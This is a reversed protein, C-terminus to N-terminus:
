GRDSSNSPLPRRRALTTLLGGMGVAGGALLLGTLFNPAHAVLLSGGALVCVAAWIAGVLLAVMTRVGPSASAVLAVVTALLTAVLAAVVVTTAGVSGFLTRGAASPTHLFGILVIGLCFVAVFGWVVPIDRRGSGTGTRM